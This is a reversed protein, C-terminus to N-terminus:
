SFKIFFYWWPKNTESIDGSEADVVIEYKVDVPLLGFLKGSKKGTVVYVPKNKIKGLQIKNQQMSYLEYAATYATKESIRTRNKIEYTENQGVIIVQTGTRGIVLKTPQEPNQVVVLDPSDNSAIYSTQEAIVIKNLLPKPYMCGKKSLDCGYECAAKKAYYCGEVVGRYIGGYYFTDNECVPLCYDTSAIIVPMTVLVFILLIM